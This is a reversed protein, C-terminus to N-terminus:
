RRHRDFGSPNLPIVFPDFEEEERGRWIALWALALQLPGIEERALRTPEGGAYQVAIGCMIWLPISTSLGVAFGVALNWDVYTLLWTLPIGFLMWTWRMGYHHLWFLITTCLIVGGGMPLILAMLLEHLWAVETQHTM